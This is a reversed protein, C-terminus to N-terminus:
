YISITPIPHHDKWISVIGVSKSPKDGKFLHFIREFRKKRLDIKYGIKKKEHGGSYNALFVLGQCTAMNFFFSLFTM